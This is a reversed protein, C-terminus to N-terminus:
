IDQVYCVRTRICSLAVALIQTHKPAHVIATMVSTRSHYSMGHMYCMHTHALTPCPLPPSFPAPPMNPRIETDTLIQTNSYEHTHM